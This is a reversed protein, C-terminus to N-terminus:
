RKFLAVAEAHDTHPFMNVVGACDLSFNKENVLIGADRALTEPNCSVYVVRRPNGDPMAKAIAEAGARHPDLLVADCEQLNVAKVGSEHTLDATQFHTREELGNLKANGLAREVQADLIEYGQVWADEKALPLSFNGLGCFLDAIRMGDEIDMFEIVKEILKRNIGPNIQVFDIPGFSIDLGNVHYMLPRKEESFRGRGGSLAEVSDPGASQIFVDVDYEKGFAALIERDEDFLPDLCRFTLALCGDGASAEIQPLRRKISLENIMSRLPDILDSIREALIPCEHMDMLYPKGKERFGVLAGGLKPVHKVALRARHRYHWHADDLSELVKSPKVGCDAFLTLLKDQKGELQEPMPVHQQTCGGCKGFYPCTYENEM